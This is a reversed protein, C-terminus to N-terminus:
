AFAVGNSISTACGLMIMAGALKLTLLIAQALLRGGPAFSARASQIRIVKGIEVSGCARPEVRFALAFV